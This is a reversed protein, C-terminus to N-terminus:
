GLEVNIVRGGGQAVHCEYHATGGSPVYIAGLNLYQSATSTNSSVIQSFSYGGGSSSIAIAQCDTLGNSGNGGARAGAYFYWGPAPVQIPIILLHSSGATGGCNNVMTAFSSGFCTDFHNPWGHGAMGSQTMAHANTGMNGLAVASVVALFLNIKRMTKDGVVQSEIVVCSQAGDRDDAATSAPLLL